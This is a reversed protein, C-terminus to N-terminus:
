LWAALTNLSLMASMPDLYSAKSLNASVTPFGATIFNSLVTAFAASSLCCNECSNGLTWLVKLAFFM